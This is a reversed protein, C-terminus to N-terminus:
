PTICFTNVIEMTTAKSLSTYGATIGYFISTSSDYMTYLDFEMGGSKHVFHYQTFTYGNILTETKHQYILGATAYLANPDATLTASDVYSPVKVHKIGVYNTDSEIDIDIGNNGTTSVRMTSPYQISYRAEAQEFINWGEKITTSAAQPEMWRGDADFSYDVGDINQTTGALMIGNADLYYWSDQDQHWQGTLITGNQDYKWQGNETQQWGAFSPMTVLLSLCSTLLM